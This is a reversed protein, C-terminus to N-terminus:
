QEVLSDWFDCQHDDAFSTITVPNPINLSQYNDLESYYQLWFPTEPSNPDGHRAFTTWYSVMQDSLREQAANLPHLTGLAGHYLPFLYMIEFTHAAGYPFSALPAYSPATRDAFEYAYVPVFMSLTRNLRRAPCANSQDTVVAAFAESPSDFNSLPYHALIAPADEPYREAVRDPYESATVEGGGVDEVPIFFRFEDCTTGNILPVRNFEGAAIAAAMNQPIITGDAIIGSRFADSQALIDQVSLARLCATTQDSCGVATAFAEGTAQADALTATATPDVGARSGSQIIGRHFLGTSAPSVLHAVVDTGGASEGFITVNHPDGGFAEINRQVWELAFQQDMIGYNAAPHGEADLAPHAFFGFINLRYNITVVVTNGERALKSGDYDNSEGDFNGGGHIWVMVPLASAKKGLPAFVNLYL